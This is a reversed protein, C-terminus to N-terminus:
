AIGYKVYKVAYHILKILFESMVFSVSTEKVRKEASASGTRRGQAESMSTTNVLDSILPSHAFKMLKTSRDVLPIRM